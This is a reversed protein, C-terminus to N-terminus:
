HCFDAGMLLVILKQKTLCITSLWFRHCVVAAAECCGEPASVRMCM